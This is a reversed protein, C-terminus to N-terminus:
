VGKSIGWTIANLRGDGVFYRLQHKEPVSRGNKQHGLAMREDRAVAVLATVDYCFNKKNGVHVNKHKKKNLKAEHRGSWGGLGGVKKGTREPEGKESAIDGFKTLELM